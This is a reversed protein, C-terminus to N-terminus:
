LNAPVKNGSQEVAKKLNLTILGIFGLIFFIILSLIAFRYSGSFQLSLGFIIPGLWSTGRESVEYFSFYEAEKGQPILLSFVSRSLAQTGGLVLGIIVGLLYFDFETQLIAYAYILAGIWVVLSILISNKTGIKKAIINFFLAGGFAVFQVILIVTTLTSIELNLEEQGFQAALAIVAQVGDNYLLYAILFWLTLPYNKMDKLTEKIQSFGVKIFSQGKPLEKIKERRQLNLLPPISFVAWWMGASALCIRVAMGTDIGLSDASSFFVLNIALLLGGGLYGFAWGKSSISDREDEEAIDNLFSNYLVMASGFSLNAIVFLLGGLGYNTGQLFFLGLTAFSGLYSFIALLQKKRNSYDALAGLIPLVLVQLIVSLSVMYPFFSGSFVTIGMIDLNGYSNAANEAITTLYPGLFVTVVTTSFASIAWDYFYWSWIEKKQARMKECRRLLYM